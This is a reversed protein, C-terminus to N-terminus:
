FLVGATFVLSNLLSGVLDIRSDIAVFNGTTWGSTPFISAPTNTPSEQFAGILMFYFPFAFVLAAATLVVYRLWTFRTRRAKGPDRRPQESARLPPSSRRPTSM